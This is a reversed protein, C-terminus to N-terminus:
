ALLTHTTVGHSPPYLIEGKTAATKPSHFEKEKQINKKGLKSNNTQLTPASDTIRNSQSLSYGLQLMFIKMKKQNQFSFFISLM